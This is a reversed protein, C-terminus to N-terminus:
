LLSKCKLIFDPTNHCIGECSIKFARLLGTINIGMITEQPEPKSSIVEGYELRKIKDATITQHGLITSGLEEHCKQILIKGSIELKDSQCISCM